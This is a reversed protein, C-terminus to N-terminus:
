KILQQLLSAMKEMRLEIKKYKAEQEKQVSEMQRAHQEWMVERKELIDIRAHLEEIQKQQEEIQKQQEQVAGVLHVTFDTYNLGFRSGDDESEDNKVTDNCWSSVCHENSDKVEQAIFGM